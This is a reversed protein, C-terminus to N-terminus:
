PKRSTLARRNIDRQILKLDAEYVSTNNRAERIEECSKYERKKTLRRKFEKIEFVLDKWFNKNM